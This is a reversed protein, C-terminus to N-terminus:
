SIAHHMRRLDEILAGLHEQGSLEGALMNGVFLAEPPSAFPGRQIAQDQQAALVAQLALERLSTEWHEGVPTLGVGSIYINRM